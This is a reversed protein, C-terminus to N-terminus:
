SNQRQRGRTSTSRRQKVAVLSNGQPKVSEVIFPKKGDGGQGEGDKKSGGENPSTLFNELKMNLSKFLLNASALSLSDSKRKDLLERAKSEFYAKNQAKVANIKDQLLQRELEDVTKAYGPAGYSVGRAHLVEKMHADYDRQLEPIKKKMSSNWHNKITNDTRGELIKAIEAWKNGM